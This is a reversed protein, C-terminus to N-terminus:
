EKVTLDEDPELHDLTSILTVTLGAKKRARSTEWQVGQGGVVNDHGAIAETFSHSWCRSSCWSAQDM